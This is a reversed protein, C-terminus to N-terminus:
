EPARWTKLVAPFKHMRTIKGATDVVFCLPLKGARDEFLKCAKCVDIAQGGVPSAHGMRQAWISCGARNMEVTGVETTYGNPRQVAVEGFHMCERCYKGDPGEGAYDAMGPVFPKEIGIPKLVIHAGSGRKPPRDSLEGTFMDRQMPKHKVGGLAAQQEESSLAKM